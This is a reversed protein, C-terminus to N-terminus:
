TLTSWKSRFNGKVWQLTMRIENYKLTKDGQSNKKPMNLTMISVHELEKEVKVDIVGQPSPRASPSSVGLRKFKLQHM